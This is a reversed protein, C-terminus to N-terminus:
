PMALRGLGRGAATSSDIEPLLARTAARALVSQSTASLGFRNWHFILVHTLVARLGRRLQGQAASTGLRRGATQFAALWPGAHAAPGGPSFLESTSLDPASLLVRVNAALQEIGTAHVGSPAPRLQAVRDFVDGHEFTDLGVAQLLGSILLISLERRGLGPTEQRLYDLVGRSDACFLEHITDMGNIGGFAATEPEYTTPWWRAIAGTATLEDLQRNVANVDAEDLRLRWCPYKRLFWWRGVQRTLRPELQTSGVTEATSWDSFEVHVQYWAHEAHQELAVLGAAHYTQVAEDLEAPDLGCDTATTHLDAGALVAQVGASLQYPATTLRDTSM